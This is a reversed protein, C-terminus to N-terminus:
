PLPLGRAKLLDDWELYNYERTNSLYTKCEDIYEKLKGLDCMNLIPTEKLDILDKERNSMLKSLAVMEISPLFIRLNRFPVGKWEHYEKGEQLYMERDPFEPFGGLEEFVGPMEKKIKELKEKSTFREIRYDIDRTGRFSEDGLHLLLSAGGFIAICLYAEEKQCILDLVVLEKVISRENLQM